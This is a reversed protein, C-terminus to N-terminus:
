IEGMKQLARDLGSFNPKRIKRPAGNNSRPKPISRQITQFDQISATQSGSSSLRGSRNNSYSLISSNGRAKKRKIKLSEIAGNRNLLVEHTKIEKISVGAGKIEEGISYLQSKKKGSRIIARAMDIDTSALIGQLTLDLTTPRAKTVKPPAPTPDGFLNAKVIDNVRYNLTSKKTIPAIKQPALNTARTRRQDYANWAISVLVLLLILISLGYAIKVGHRNWTRSNSITNVLEM